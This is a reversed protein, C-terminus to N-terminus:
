VGVTSQTSGPMLSAAGVTQVDTRTCSFPFSHSDCGLTTAQEPDLRAVGLCWDLALGLPDPGRGLHPRLVLLEAAHHLGTAQVRHALFGATGVDELTPL